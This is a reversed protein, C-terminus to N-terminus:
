IREVSFDFVRGLYEINAAHHGTMVLCHHSPLTTMLRHGSPVRVIGGNHCDSDPYQAYGELTGELVTMKDLAPGFKALTVPGTAFLADVATANEDVIRLVKPRLTWGAAYAAPMLGFYGCHAMLVCNEPESIEPFGSIREHKLAAQGMLFPYLNTMMIPAELSHQLIHQTLMSMTDAECGWTMGREAHLLCWALCPTTDTFHSENLCNIGVAHIAPDRGLDQKVALYLKLASRLAWPSVGDTAIQRTERVADAEADTIGAIRRGLAKFSQKEIRIGFKEMIRQTCEDEWWYFRKFIGSQFGEGPDDQYVLFRVEKLERRLALSRCIARTQELTYPALARVGESALYATLEWDWMSMTGFESTVILVPADIRRFDDLRRYGEGLFQPFLAADAPPLPAGLPVPELLEAQEQLLIKLSDLQTDFDANRGAPFFVPVLRAKM